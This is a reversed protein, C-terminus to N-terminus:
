AKRLIGEKPTTLYDKRNIIEFVKRWTTKFLQLVWCPHISINSQTSGYDKEHLFAISL